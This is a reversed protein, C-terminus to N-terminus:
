FRLSNARSSASVDGERYMIASSTSLGWAEVLPIGIKKANTVDTSDIRPGQLSYVDFPEGSGYRSGTTVFMPNTRAQSKGLRVTHNGSAIDSIFTREM